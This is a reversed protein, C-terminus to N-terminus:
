LFIDNIADFAIKAAFFLIILASIQTIRKLMAPSAIRHSIALAGCFLVVWLFIGGLFIITVFLRDSFTELAVGSNIIYGGFTAWWFYSWPSSTVIIFGTLYQRGIKLIRGSEPDSAEPSSELYKSEEEPMNETADMRLASIGIYSLIGINALVLVIYVARIKVISAILESGVFLVSMAIMFDGTMAGIGTIMGLVWGSKSALTQKLMEMNVPGIPAALSFGLGILLAVINLTLAM